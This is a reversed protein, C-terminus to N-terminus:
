LQENVHLLMPERLETFRVSSLGVVTSTVSKDDANPNDAVQVQKQAMKKWLTKYKQRATQELRVIFSRHKILFQYVHFSAICALSCIVMLQVVNGEVSQVDNPAFFLGLLLLCVLYMMELANLFEIKYVRVFSLISMIFLCVWALVSLIAVQDNDLAAFLALVCRALLLVGTWSRYKDKYPGGYADYWPKLRMHWSSWCKIGPLYREMLPFLLLFLTFLILFPAFVGVGIGFLVSHCGSTYNVNGDVYWVTFNECKSMSANQDCDAVVITAKHLILITTRLFKTYSLLLLTALVPVAKSGILLSVKGSLLRVVRISSLGSWQGAKCIVIILVVISLLFLPFAFQLGIKQCTSMGRIFCSPIGLDLNVWSITLRVLSYFRDSRFIPEYIKVINVFFIFGNITGMSVTLNLGILLAVLGVGALFCGLVIIPLQWVKETCNHCENSGLTLSYGPLCDGCLVGSREYNCQENPNDISFADDNCYDFPCNDSIMISDNGPFIWSTINRQITESTINCTALRQISTSCDCIGKESLEFGPPCPQVTIKILVPTNVVSPLSEDAIIASIIAEKVVEKLELKQIVTTCQAQFTKISLASM